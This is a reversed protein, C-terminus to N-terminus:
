GDEETVAILQQIDSQVM